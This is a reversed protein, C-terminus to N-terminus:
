EDWGYDITLEEGPQIDRAAYLDFGDFWASAPVAHNLYRLLNRGSRAEVTGDEHTVWLVYPGNRSATPGEYTGIWSDAAIAVRAFLGFGHITSPSKRVQDALRM